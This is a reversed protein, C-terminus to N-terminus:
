AAISVAEVTTRRNLGLGLWPGDIVNLRFKHLDWARVRTRISELPCAHGVVDLETVTELFERNATDRQQPALAPTDLLTVPAAM